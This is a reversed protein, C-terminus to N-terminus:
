SRNLEVVHFRRSGSDAPLWDRRQTCFIINPTRVEVLEDSYPRRVRTKESTILGKLMTLESRRLAEAEDIILTAPQRQLAGIIDPLGGSIEEYNGAKSAISRALKTKGSGQPGVLVLAQGRQLTIPNLNGIQM